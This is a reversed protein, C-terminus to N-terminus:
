GADRMIALCLEEKATLGIWEPYAQIVACIRQQEKKVAADLCAKLECDANNIMSQLIDVKAAMADTKARWQADRAMWQADRDAIAAGMAAAIAAEIDDLSSQGFVDPLREGCSFCFSHSSSVETSCRPCYLVAREDSEVVWGRRALEAAALEARKTM